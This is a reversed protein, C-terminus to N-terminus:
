IRGNNIAIQINSWEPNGTIEEGCYDPLETLEDEYEIEVVMRGDPYVDMDIHNGYFETSYRTKELRHPAMEYLELADAMPIEYEFEKKTTDNVAQKYTMYAKDNDIRVRLNNIGDLMLYGQKIHHTNSFAGWDPIYKLIFKREKELNNKEPECPQIVIGGFRGEQAQCKIGNIYCINSKYYDETGLYQGICGGSVDENFFEVLLGKDDTAKRM